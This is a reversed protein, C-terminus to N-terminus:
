DYRLAELPSLAAAKYAPYLGFVVGVLVSFAVACCVASPMVAMPVDGAGFEPALRVVAGGLVVGGCGGVASLAMVEILFQTLIDRPTAGVAKRLGVERTREAVSILMVNMIGVGGVILSIGALALMSLELKRSTKQAEDILAKPDVILYASKKSPDGSIASLIDDKPDGAYDKRVWVEAGGNSTNLGEEQRRLTDLPIYLSEVQRGLSLPVNPERVLGVVTYLSKGFRLLRGLPDSTGYLRRALDQNLLCVRSRLRVDQDVFSRGGVFPIRYVELYRPLVGVANVQVGGLDGRAEASFTLLPFAAEVFPLRSVRALGELDIVGVRNRSPDVNPYITLVNTGLSSLSELVALRLGNSIAAVVTSSAIGIILGLVSLLSRTKNASLNKRAIRACERLRM